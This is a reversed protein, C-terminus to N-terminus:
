SLPDVLYYGTSLGSDTTSTTTTTGSDLQTLMAALSSKTAVGNTMNFMKNWDSFITGDTSLIFSPEIISVKDPIYEFGSINLANRYEDAVQGGIYLCGNKLVSLINKYSIAGSDDKVKSAIMFLRETGKSAQEFSAKLEAEDVSGPIEIDGGTGGMSEVVNAFCNRIAQETKSYDRGHIGNSQYLKTSEFVDVYIFTKGSFDSDESMIDVAEKLLSNYEKVKEATIGNENVNDNLGLCSVIYIYKLNKIKSINYKSSSDKGLNKLTSLYKSSLVKADSYYLNNYGYNFALSVVEDSCIKELQNSTYTLSNELSMSGKGIFIKSNVQNLGVTLSDGCFYFSGEADDFPNNITDDSLLSVSETVEEEGENETEYDSASVISDNSDESLSNKNNIFIGVQQTSYASEETFISDSDSMTGWYLFQEDNYNASYYYLKQTLPLYTNQNEDLNYFVVDKLDAQISSNSVYASYNIDNLIMIKTSTVTYYNNNYISYTQTNISNQPNIITINKDSSDLFDNNDVANWWQTKKDITYSFEDDTDKILQLQCLFTRFSSQICEISSNYLTSDNEIMFGNNYVSNSISNEVVQIVWIYDSTYIYKNQVANYVVSMNNSSLTISNYSNEKNGDMYFLDTKIQGNEFINQAFNSKSLKKVDKDYFSYGQSLKKGIVASIIAKESYSNLNKNTVFMEGKLSLRASYDGKNDSYESQTETKFIPKGTDNYLYFGVNQDTLPIESNYNGTTNEDGSSTKFEYGARLRVHNNEILSLGYKNFRAFDVLGSTSTAPNRYANIGDKDWLFYIYSGDVIQIKSADIQGFKIYDANMGQPGVGIDWTEGGDKSFFLGEGTLKYQSANNSIGKGKTGSDDLTINENNSDIITLDGQNLTGQLSDQQIYQKATFNSSRKYTNENFTLSQVTATISGFLDEFSTNYNQITISDQTPNDLAYTIESIIVKERNPLGTKKNIDFFDIDEVYTTDALEFTYDDKFEELPSINIVNLNYSVKPICSEDLVSVAAWYYENDTLYNSDTWTGEKIYPEYIKYFSESIENIKNLIKNREKKWYNVQNLLGKYQGLQGNVTYLYKDVIKEKFDEWSRFPPTYEINNDEFNEFMLRWFLEGKCYVDKNKNIIQFEVSDDPTLDSLNIIKSKVIGNNDIYCYTFYNESFFLDEILGWLIVAQERYKEMYNKYTDSITYETKSTTKSIIQGSSNYSTQEELKSQQIKYQYMQQSIRKREELATTVGTIGVEIEAQLSTMEEGTMAVILNTYKDYKKNYAGIRPLFSFDDKDIGYIDRQTQEPDLLGKKTYYSFDLIYSNKGLNDIATQISCVGDNQLSSDVSEVYLKTTISSSDVTRSIDQLNKEYRFGAYKDQGKETMFCIHKKPTGDERLKVKGTDDYEIYFVPYFEFVKSTEQILNFRNSKSQELTRIRRPHKEAIFRYPCIGSKQYICEKDFKNTGFSCDCWENDVSAQSADYYQCQLLDINATLVELDEEVYKTKDVAEVLDTIKFTDKYLYKGTEKYRKDEEKDDRKLEPYKIAQIFYKQCGYTDGLTVDSELLLDKEHVAACYIGDSISFCENKNKNSFIDFERGSYKYSFYNDDFEMIRSTEINLNDPDHESARVITFDDQIFDHGRTYAELLEFSYINLKGREQVISSNVLYDKYTSNRIVNQITSIFSSFSTNSSLSIEIDSERYYGSAKYILNLDYYKIIYEKRQEISLSFYKTLSISNILCKKYYNLNEFNEAYKDYDTSKLISYCMSPMRHKAYFYSNTDLPSYSSDKVGPLLTGDDSWIYTNSNSYHFIKDIITTLEQINDMETSYQKQLVEATNTDDITSNNPINENPIVAYIINNNSNYYKIKGDKNQEPQKNSHTAEYSQLKLLKNSNVDGKGTNKRGDKCPIFTITYNGYNKIYSIEELSVGGWDIAPTNYDFLGDTVSFGDGSGDSSQSFDEVIAYHVKNDGQYELSAVVLNNTNSISSAIKDQSAPGAKLVGSSSNFVIYQSADKMIQKSQNFYGVDMFFGPCNDNSYPVKKEVKKYKGTSTDYTLVNFTNDRKLAVLDYSYFIKIKSGDSDKRGVAIITYKGSSNNRAEKLICNYNSVLLARAWKVFAYDLGQQTTEYEYKKFYSPVGSSEEGIKILDQQSYSSKIAERGSSTSDFKVKGKLVFFIIENNSLYSNKNNKLSEKYIINIPSGTSAGSGTNSFYIMTSDNSTNAFDKFYLQKINSYSM